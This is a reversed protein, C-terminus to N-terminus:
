SFLSKGEMFIAGARTFLMLFALLEALMAVGVLVTYINNTPKVTITDGTSVRSM